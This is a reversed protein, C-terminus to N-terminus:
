TGMEWSALYKEQEKTLKDIQMGMGALKLRAIEKDIVPPIPYVKKELHPSPTLCRKRAFFQRINGLL